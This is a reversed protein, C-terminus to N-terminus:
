PPLISTGLLAQRPDLISIVPTTRDPADLSIARNLFLGNLCCRVAAQAKSRIQDSLGTARNKSGGLSSGSRNIRSILLSDARKSINNKRAAAGCIDRACSATEVVVVEPVLEDVLAGDDAVVVLSNDVPVVVAGPVTVLEEVAPVPTSPPGDPTPTKERVGTFIYAVM